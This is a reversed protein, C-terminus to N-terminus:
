STRARRMGRLGLVGVLLGGAVLLLDVASMGVHLVGVLGVVAAAVGAVIALISLTKWRKPSAPVPVKQNDSM